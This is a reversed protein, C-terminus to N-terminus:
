ATDSEDTWYPSFAVEPSYRTINTDITYSDFETASAPSPSIVIESHMGPDQDQLDGFTRVTVERISGGKSSIDKTGAFFYARMTFGMTWVMVRTGDATQEYADDWQVSDLILPIDLSLGELAPDSSKLLRM